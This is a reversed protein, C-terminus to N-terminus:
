MCMIFGEGNSIKVRNQNALDTPHSRFSVSINITIFNREHIYLFFMFKSTVYLHFANDLSTHFQSTNGTSKGQGTVYLIFSILFVKKYTDHLLFM